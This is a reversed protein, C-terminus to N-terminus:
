QGSQPAPICQIQQSSNPTGLNSPLSYWHILHKALDGGGGDNGPGSVAWAMALLEEKGSWLRDDDDGREDDLLEDM